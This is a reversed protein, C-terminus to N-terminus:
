GRNIEPLFIIVIAPPYRENAAIGIFPIFRVPFPLLRRHGKVNVPGRASGVIL